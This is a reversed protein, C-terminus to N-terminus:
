HDATAEDDGGDGRANETGADGGDELGSPLPCAADPTFYLEYDEDDLLGDSTRLKVNVYTRRAFSCQVSIRSKSGDNPDPAVVVTCDPAAVTATVASILVTERDLEECVEPNPGGLDYSSVCRPATNCGGPFTPSTTTHSCQCSRTIRSAEVVIVVPAGIAHVSVGDLDRAACTRRASVDQLSISLRRSVKALDDESGLCGGLILLGFIPGLVFRHAM